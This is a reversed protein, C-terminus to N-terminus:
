GRRGRTGKAVSPLGEFGVELFLNKRRKSQWDSWLYHGKRTGLCTGRTAMVTNSPDRSLKEQTGDMVHTFGNVGIRGEMCGM